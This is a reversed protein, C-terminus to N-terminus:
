GPAPSPAVDRGPQEWHAMGRSWGQGPVGPGHGDHGMGDEGAVAAGACGPRVEATSKVGYKGRSRLGETSCGDAQYSPTGHAPALKDCLNIPQEDAAATFDM